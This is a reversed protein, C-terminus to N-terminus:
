CATSTGHRQKKVEAVNGITERAVKEKEKARRAKREKTALKRQEPGQWARIDSSFWFSNDESPKSDGYEVPKTKYRALTKHTNTM